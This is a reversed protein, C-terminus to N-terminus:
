CISLSFWRSNTLSFTTLKRCCQLCDVSACLLAPRSCQLATGNKCHKPSSPSWSDVLASVVLSRQYDWEWWFSSAAWIWLKFLSFAYAISFGVFWCQFCDILPKDLRFLLGSCTRCSLAGPQVIACHYGFVLKRYVCEVVCIPAM